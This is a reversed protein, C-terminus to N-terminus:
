VCSVILKVISAQFSSYNKGVILVSSCRSIDMSSLTVPSAHDHEEIESSSKWRVRSECFQSQARGTDGSSRISTEVSRFATAVLDDSLRNIGVFLKYDSKFWIGVM